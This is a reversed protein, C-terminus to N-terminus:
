LGTGDVKWIVLRSLAFGIHINSLSNDIEEFCVLLLIFVLQHFDMSASFPFLIARKSLDMIERSAKWFGCISHDVIKGKWTISGHPWIKRWSDLTYEM